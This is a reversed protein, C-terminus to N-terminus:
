HKCPMRVLSGIVNWIIRMATTAGLNNVDQDPVFEVLNFGAIRTRRSLLHVLEIVHNYTLGGPAPAGVAPIVAPDLGDCDLTIYCASNEPVLSAVFEVGKKSFTQATVIQAGYAQAAEFEETRSSGVGRVGVQIIKDVWSMESARRMTSSYGVTVGDVEHRWDIHADIQVINIPGYGEFARFVNIPISDDGGIVVPVADAQLISQIADQTLRRNYIPDSPDGPLDGFDVVLVSGDNLLTGNLDFDWSVIDEPYRVSQKRIVKSANLTHPLEGLQYPTGYPIGIVVISADLDDLTKCAPLGAFTLGEESMRMRGQLSKDIHQIDRGSVYEHEIMKGPNHNKSLFV